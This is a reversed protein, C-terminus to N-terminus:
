VQAISEHHKAGMPKSVNLVPDLIKEDITKFIRVKDEESIVGIRLYPAYNITKTPIQLKEVTADDIPQPPNKENPKASLEPPLDLEDILSPDIKQKLIDHANFYFIPRKMQFTSLAEQRYFAQNNVLDIAGTSKMHRYIDHCRAHLVLAENTFITKLENLLALRGEKDSSKLQQLKSILEQRTFTRLPQTSSGSNSPISSNDAQILSKNPRVAPLMADTNKFFDLTLEIATIIFHLYCDEDVIDWGSESAAADIASEFIMNLNKAQDLNKILLFQDKQGGSIYLKTDQFLDFLSVTEIYRKTRPTIALMFARNRDAKQQEATELALIDAVVQERTLETVKKGSSNTSESKEITSEKSVPELSLVKKPVTKYSRPLWDHYTDNELHFATLQQYEHSVLLTETAVPELHKELAVYTQKLLTEFDLRLNIHMHNRKARALIDDIERLFEKVGAHKSAGFYSKATKVVTNEYISWSAPGRETPHQLPNNTLTLPIKNISDPISFQDIAEDLELKFGATMETDVTLYKLLVTKTENLLAETTLTSNQKARNHIENLANQLIKARRSYKDELNYLSTRVPPPLHKSITQPQSGLGIEVMTKITPLVVAAYQAAPPKESYSTMRTKLADIFSDVAKVPNLHTDLPTAVGLASPSIFNSAHLSLEDARDPSLSDNSNAAKLSLLWEDHFTKIHEQASTINQNPPVNIARELNEAIAGMLTKYVLNTISFNDSASEEFPTRPFYQDVLLEVQKFTFFEMEALNRPLYPVLTLDPNGQMDTSTRSLYLLFSNRIQEATQLAAKFFCDINEQNRDLKMFMKVFDEQTGLRDKLGLIKNKTVEEDPNLVPALGLLNRPIQTFTLYPHNNIFAVRAEAYSCELAQGYKKQNELFNIINIYNDKNLAIGYREISQNNIGPTITFKKLNVGNMFALPRAYQRAEQDAASAKSYILNVSGEFTVREATSTEYDLFEPDIKSPDLSNFHLRLNHLLWKERSDQSSAQAQHAHPRQLSAEANKSRNQAQIEPSTNRATNAVTDSPAATDRNPESGAAIQQTAPTAEQTLIKDALNQFLASAFETRDASSFPFIRRRWMRRECTIDGLITSVPKHIGQKLYKLHTELKLHLDDAALKAISARPSPAAPATSTSSSKNQEQLANYDKEMEEYKKETYTYFKGLVPYSPNWSELENNVAANFQISDPSHIKLKKFKNLIDNLITRVEPKNFLAILEERNLNALQEEKKLTNAISDIITSAVAALLVEKERDIYFRWVFKGLFAPIAQVKRLKYRTILTNHAFNEDNLQSKAQNLIANIINEQYKKLLLQTEASTKEFNYSLDKPTEPIIKSFIELQERLSNTVSTQPQQIAISNNAVIGFSANVATIKELQDAAQMIEKGKDIIGGEGSLYVPVPVKDLGQAEGPSKSKAPEMFEVLLETRRDVRTATDRNCARTTEAADREVLPRYLDIFSDWLDVYVQRNGKSKCIDQILYAGTTRILSERNIQLYNKIKTLYNQLAAIRKPNSDFGQATEVSKSINNYITKEYTKSWDTLAAQFEDLAAQLKLHIELIGRFSVSHKIGFSCTEFIIPIINEGASNPDIEQPNDDQRFALRDSNPRDFESGSLFELSSLKFELDALAQTVKAQAAVIKLSARLYHCKESVARPIRFLEAVKKSAFLVNASIKKFALSIKETSYWKSKSNIQQITKEIYEPKLHAPFLTKIANNCRKEFIKAFNNEPVGHILLQPDVSVMTLMNCTNRFLDKNASCYQALSYDHAGILDNVYARQTKNDRDYWISNFLRNIPSWHTRRNKFLQTREEAPFQTYYNNLTLVKYMNAFFRRYWTKQGKSMTAYGPVSRIVKSQLAEPPGQQISERHELRQNAPSIGSVLAKHIPYNPGSEEPIYESSNRFCNGILSTINPM